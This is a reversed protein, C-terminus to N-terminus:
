QAPVQRLVDALTVAFADIQPDTLCMPPTLTLVDGSVGGPLTIFGRELLARVVALTRRAGGDLQLGALLGAFTRRPVGLRHDRLANNLATELAIARSRIIESTRPDSLVALSALAAACALPNGLFTSTHVAERDSAGWASAVSDRMLCASVPMGGGLAKGLCIIDPDCGQAVSRFLRGTRGLGTYIEDAIILAGHHRAREALAALFGTVPAEVGGRGLIPEILVAGIQRAALATEVAEISVNFAETALEPEHSTVKPYPVFVVYPNLQDAFPQRFDRKYGCAAVAGYSLGHYGGEFALIGPRGTALRASKLAAEIADSGSLGLIVRAPWPAMGALREELEIKAESPHVDGLAHVLRESQSRIAAVIDPHGHGILAAGFGATLDIYRNGDVDVVCAGRAASWVIPDHSAGSAEARRKRRATLSPCEFAALREVWASSRPGPPNSVVLPLEDGRPIPPLPRVSM